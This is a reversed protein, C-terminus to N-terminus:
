PLTHTPLMSLQQRLNEHVVVILLAKARTYGVYAITRDWDSNIQEIDTLIVIPSELGKYGQVSSYAILNKPHERVIHGDLHEIRAPVRLRGSGALSAGPSKPSLLVIDSPSAGNRLLKIIEESVLAGEEYQSSYFMYKVPLGRVNRADGASLGSVSQVQTVIPKTNRCNIRLRYTAANEQIYQFSKENLKEFLNKQNEPDLFIAWQGKKIGGEVVNELLGAYIETLVDQGEDVILYQYPQVNIRAMEFLEPYTQSFLVADSESSSREKLESALGGRNIVSRLFGHITMVEVKKDYGETKIIQAVYAALLANYCLFLTKVDRAGMRRAQEIALMSKGTGAPGSFLNRPNDTMGDLCAYQERTLRLVADEAEDIDLKVPRITEFDGRMFEVLEEIEEHRLPHSHKSREVWYRTIRDIYQSIQNELDNSDYIMASDWEPSDVEFVIDPFMAGYGYCISDNFSARRKIDARLSYMGSKAQSFPSEKKVTVTGNRDTFKWLGKERTVRGGKVELVFVGLPGVLVFDLESERKWIHRSLGLSHLCTWEEYGEIGSLQKFVKSEANSLNGNIYAPIMKM